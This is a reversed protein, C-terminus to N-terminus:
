FHPKVECVLLLTFPHCSFRQLTGLPFVVLRFIPCGQYVLDSPEGLFPLALTSRLCGRKVVFRKPGREAGRTEFIEHNESEALPKSAQKALYQQQRPRHTAVEACRQPVHSRAKVNRSARGSQCVSGSKRRM